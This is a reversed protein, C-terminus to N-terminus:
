VGVANIHVQDYEHLINAMVVTGCRTVCLNIFLIIGKLQLHLLVWWISFVLTGMLTILSGCTMIIAHESDVRIEKLTINLLIYIQTVLGSLM